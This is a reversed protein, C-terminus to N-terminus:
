NLRALLQNYKAKGYNEITAAVIIGGDISYQGMINGETYEM